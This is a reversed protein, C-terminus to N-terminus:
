KSSSAWGSRERRDLSCRVQVEPCDVATYVGKKDARAAARAGDREEFVSTQQTRASDAEARGPRSRQMSRQDPRVACAITASGAGTGELGGAGCTASRAPSELRSHSCAARHACRSHRARRRPTAGPHVIRAAASSTLPCSCVPTRGEAAPTTHIHPHTHAGYAGHPPACTLHRACLM